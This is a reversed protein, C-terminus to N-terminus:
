PSASAMCRARNFPFPTSARCSSEARRSSIIKSRSCVQACATRAGNQKGVFTRPATSTRSIIKESVLVVVLVFEDTANEHPSSNAAGPTFARRANPRNFPRAPKKRSCCRSCSCRSCPPGRWPPPKTPQGGSRRTCNPMKPWSCAARRAIPKEAARIRKGPQGPVSGPPMPRLEFRTEPAFEAALKTKKTKMNRKRQQNFLSFGAISQCDRTKSFDNRKRLFKRGVSGLPHCSVRMWIAHSGSVPEHMKLQKAFITKMVLPVYSVCKRTM